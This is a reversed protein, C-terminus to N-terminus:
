DQPDIDLIKLEQLLALRESENPPLPAVIMLNLVGMM